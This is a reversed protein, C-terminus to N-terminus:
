KTRWANERNIDYEIADLLDACSARASTTL